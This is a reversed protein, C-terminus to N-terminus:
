KIIPADNQGMEVHSSASLAPATARASAALHPTKQPMSRAVSEPKTAAPMPMPVPMPTSAQVASAQVAAQLQTSLPLASSPQISATPVPPDRRVLASALATTLAGLGFALTLGRWRPAREAAASVPLAHPKEAAFPQSPPFM